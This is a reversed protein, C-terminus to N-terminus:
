DKKLISISKRRDNNKMANDDLTKDLAFVVNNTDVPLNKHDPFEKIIKASLLSKKVPKFYRVLITCTPQASTIKVNQIYILQSCSGNEHVGVATEATSSRVM